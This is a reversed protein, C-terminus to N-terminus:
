FYYVSQEVLVACQGESSNCKRWLGANTLNRTVNQSGEIKTLETMTVWNDTAIAVCLFTLAACACVSTTVKLMKKSNSCMEALSVVCVCFFSLLACRSSEHNRSADDAQETINESATPYVEPASKAVDAYKHFTPEAAIYRYTERSRSDLDRHRDEFRAHAHTFHRYHPQLTPIHNQSLIRQIEEQSLNEILSTPRKAKSQFLNQAELEEIQSAERSDSASSSSTLISRRPSSTQTASDEYEVRLLDGSSCLSASPALLFRRGTVDRQAITTSATSSSSGTLRHAPLHALDECTRKARHTTVTLAPDGWYFFNTRRPTFIIVYM